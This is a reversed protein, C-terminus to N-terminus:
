GLFFSIGQCPLASAVTRVAWIDVFDLRVGGQRQEHSSGERVSNM